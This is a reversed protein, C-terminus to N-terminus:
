DSMVGELKSKGAGQVEDALRFTFGNLLLSSREKLKTNKAEKKNKKKVTWKKAAGWGAFSVTTTPPSSLRDSWETGCLSYLIVLVVPPYHGLNLEGTVLNCQEQELIFPHLLIGRRYALRVHVATSDFGM